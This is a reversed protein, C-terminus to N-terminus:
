KGTLINGVTYLSGTVLVQIKQYKNQNSYDVIWDVTEEISGIRYINNKDFNPVLEIWNDVLVKKMALLDDVPLSNSNTNDISCGHKFTINTTFIIQDFAATTNQLKSIVKLLGFGDRGKTCNFILVRSVSKDKEKDKEVIGKFWQTCMDLSELTHASDLYWTLSQNNNVKTAYKTQDNPIKQGRGPWVVKKLGEIFGAPVEDDDSKFKIGRCEELWKKAM